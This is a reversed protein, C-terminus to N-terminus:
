VGAQKFIERVLTNFDGQDAVRINRANRLGFIELGCFEVMGSTEEEPNEAQFQYIAAASLQEYTRWPVIVYRPERGKNLYIGKQHEILAVIEEM